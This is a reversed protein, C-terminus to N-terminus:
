RFYSEIDRENWSEIQLSNRLKNKTKENCISMFFYTTIYKIVLVNSMKTVLQPTSHKFETDKHVHYICIKIGTFNAYIFLVM